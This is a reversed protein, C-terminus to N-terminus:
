YLFSLTSAILVCKYVKASFWNSVTKFCFKQATFMKTCQIVYKTVTNCPLACYNRYHSYKCIPIPGMDWVATESDDCSDNQSKVLVQCETCNFDKPLTVERDTTNRQILPNVFKQFLKFLHYWYLVMYRFVKFSSFTRVNRYLVLIRACFVKTSQELGIIIYTRGCFKTSFVKVFPESVMFFVFTKERSLKGGNPIERPM